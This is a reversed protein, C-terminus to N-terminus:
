DPWLSCHWWCISFFINMQQKLEEKGGSFNKSFKKGTDDQKLKKKIPFKTTDDTHFKITGTGDQLSVNIVGCPLSQLCYKVTHLDWEAAMPMSILIFLFVASYYCSAHQQLVTHDCCMFYYFSFSLYPAVDPVLTYVSSVRTQPTPSSLLSHPATVNKFQHLSKKSLTFWLIYSCSPEAPHWSADSLTPVWTPDHVEPTTLPSAQHWAWHLDHLRAVFRCCALIFSLSWFLVTPWM